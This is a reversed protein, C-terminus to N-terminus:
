HSTGLLTVGTLRAAQRDFTRLDHGGSRIAAQRIMLDLFRFGGNQYLPLIEAVDEVAEVQLEVVSVLGMVPLLLKM